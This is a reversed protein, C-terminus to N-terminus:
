AWIHDDANNSQAIYILLLYVHCIFRYVRFLGPNRYVAKRAFFVFVSMNIVLPLNIGM